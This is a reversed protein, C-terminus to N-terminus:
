RRRRPPKKALTAKLGEIVADLGFDFLEERSLPTSLTATELSAEVHGGGAAAIAEIEIQGLTIAYLAAFALAAEADSFGGDALISLVGETLRAAETSGIAHRSLSLGPYTTVARRADRELQRMREDWAGEDATPVRVPRLVHDVVLVQLAGKSPLYNYLTMVPVGLEGALARMSLDDLPSEGSLKLAAEV